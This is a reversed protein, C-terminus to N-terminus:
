EVGAHLRHIAGHCESCLWIVDLPRSYDEHHSERRSFSFDHGCRECAEAPVVRGGQVAHNLDDLAKFRLPERKRREIYYKLVRDRNRWYSARAQERVLLRGEATSVVEAYHRRSYAKACEKCAPQRGERQRYFEELEKEQGCDRCRKMGGCRHM